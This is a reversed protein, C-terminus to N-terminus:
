ETLLRFLAHRKQLGSIGEVIQIRETELWGNRRSVTRQVQLGTDADTEQKISVIPNRRWEDKHRQRWRKLARRRNGAAPAIFSFWHTPIRAANLMKKPDASFGTENM